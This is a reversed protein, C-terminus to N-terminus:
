AETCRNMRFRHGSYKEESKWRRVCVEWIDRCQSDQFIFLPISHYEQDGLLQPDSGCASNQHKQGLFFNIGRKFPVTKSQEITARVMTPAALNDVAINETNLHVKPNYTGEDPVPLEETRLFGFFEICHM